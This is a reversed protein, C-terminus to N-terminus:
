SPRWRRTHLHSNPILRARPRPKIQQKNCTSTTTTSATHSNTSIGGFVIGFDSFIEIIGLGQVLFKMSVALGSKQPICGELIRVTEMIRNWAVRSWAGGPDADAIEIEGLNRDCSSYRAVRTDKDPLSEFQPVHIESFGCRREVVVNRSKKRQPLGARSPLKYRPITM